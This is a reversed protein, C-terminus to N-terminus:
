YGSSLHFIFFTTQAWQFRKKEVQFHQLSSCLAFRELIYSVDWHLDAKFHSYKKGIQCYMKLEFVGLKTHISYGTITSRTGRWFYGKVGFYFRFKIITFM